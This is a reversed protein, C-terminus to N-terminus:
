WVLRGAWHITEWASTRVVDYSRNPRFVEWPTKFLEFFEEVVSKQTDRFIVGIM